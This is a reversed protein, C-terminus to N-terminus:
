RLGRVRELLPIILFDGLLNVGTWVTVVLTAQEQNAGVVDVFYLALYSYLVDMLLDACELLILWRLVDPRRIARWVSAIGSELAPGFDSVGSGAQSSNTPFAFQKLMLVLIFSLGTAGVFFARWGAKSAVALGLLAARGARRGVRRVDLPGHK